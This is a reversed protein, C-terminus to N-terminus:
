SLPSTFSLVFCVMHYFSYLARDHPSSGSFFEYIYVAHKHHLSQFLGVMDGSLIVEISYEFFKLHAM